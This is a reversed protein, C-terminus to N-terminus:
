AWAATDASKRETLKAEPIALVASRRMEKVPIILESAIGYLKADPPLEGLIERATARDSCILLAAVEAGTEVTATSLTPLLRYIPSGEGYRHAFDAAGDGCKPHQIVSVSRIQDSGIRDAIAKLTDRRDAMVGRVLASEEAGSLPFLPFLVPIQRDTFAKVELVASPALGIVAATEQAQSLIEAPSGNMAVVDIQRGSLGNPGVAARLASQLLAAYREAAARNDGVVAVGFTISRPKIGARQLADIRGLYASLSSFAAEDLAYRPMTNSLTRGDSARGEILAM